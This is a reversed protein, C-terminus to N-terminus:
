PKSDSTGNPRPLVPRTLIVTALSRQPWMRWCGAGAAHDGHDLELAPGIVADGHAEVERTPRRRCNRGVCMMVLSDSAMTSVGPSVM